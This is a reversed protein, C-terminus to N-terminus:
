GRRGFDTTYTSGPVGNPTGNVIGIGVERYGRSLINARHGPSHMWMDVISAPAAVTGGGWALNEGVTWVAASALYGTQEIRGMFDGHQFTHSRVMGISHRESAQRLKMSPKLARLGYRRREVNLLCLTAERTQAMRAASPVVGAGRCTDAQAVSPAALAVLALSATLGHCLSLPRM